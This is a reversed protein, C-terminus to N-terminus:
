WNTRVQEVMAARTVTQPHTAELHQRPYYLEGPLGTPYYCQPEYPDFGGEAFIAHRPTAMEGRLYPMLSRSFNTHEAETGALQLCTAMVDFLM